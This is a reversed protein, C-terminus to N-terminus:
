ICNHCLKSTSKKRMEAISSMFDDELDRKKQTILSNDEKEMKWKLETSERIIPQSWDARLGFKVASGETAGIMQKEICDVHDSFSPKIEHM